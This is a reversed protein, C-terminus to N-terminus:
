ADAVGTRGHRLVFRGHETLVAAAEPDFVGGDWALLNRAALNRVTPPRTADRVFHPPGPADYTTRSHPPRVLRRGPELIELVRRQAPSISHWINRARTLGLRCERTAKDYFALADHHGERRLYDRFEQEREAAELEFRHLVDPPIPRDPM